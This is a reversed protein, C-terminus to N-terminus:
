AYVLPYCTYKRPGWRFTLTPWHTLLFLYKPQASSKSTKLFDAMMQVALLVMFRM